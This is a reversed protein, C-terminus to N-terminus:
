HNFYAVECQRYPCYWAADGVKARADPGIHTDLPGVGVAIGLTGCHPCYLRGDFEPERVFAKNM